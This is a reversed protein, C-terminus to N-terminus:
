DPPLPGDCSETSRFGAAIWIARGEPSGCFDLFARALEPHRGDKLPAAYFIIKPQWAEPINTIEVAENSLAKGDTAYALTADAEGLRVRATAARVNPEFSVVQAEVRHRFDKGLRDLTSANTLLQRAYRGAPVNPSALVLTRKPHALDRLEELHLGARSLIILRNCAVKRVQGPAVRGAEIVRQMQSHNASFFLDAPAGQGLQTALQQSGLFQFEIPLPQQRSQEFKRAMETLSERLSAAAFISLRPESLREVVKGCGAALLGAVLPFVWWKWKASQM